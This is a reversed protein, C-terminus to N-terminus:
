KSIWEQWRGNKVLKVFQEFTIDFRERIDFHIFYVGLKEIDMSVGHVVYMSM